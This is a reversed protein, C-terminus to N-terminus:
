CASCGRRSRARRWRLQGGAGPQSQGLRHVRGIRQELVAPEVAPRHQARRPTNGPEFGRRGRRDGPLGATPIKASSTSWCGASPAPVGGHLPRAVVEAGRVLGSCCSRCARAAAAAPKGPRFHDCTRKWPPTGPGLAPQQDVLRSSGSQRAKRAVSAPPTPKFRCCAETTSLMSRGDFGRPGPAPADAPDVPSPLALRHPHDVEHRLARDLLPHERASNLFDSDRRRARRALLFDKEAATPESLEHLTHLRRGLRGAVRLRCWSVRGERFRRRGGRGVALRLRFGHPPRDAAALGQDDSIWVPNASNCCNAFADRGAPPCPRPVAPWGARDLAVRLGPRRVEPHRHRRRPARGPASPPRPTTPPVAASLVRVRNKEVEGRAGTSRPRPDPHPAKLAGGL